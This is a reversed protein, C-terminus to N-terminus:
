QPNNFYSLKSPPVLSAPLMEFPIPNEPSKKAIECLRLAIAFEDLDLKGDKDIDSLTWVKRLVGTAVGTAVLATKVQAGSLKGAQPGLMLFQREYAAKERERIIYDEEFPNDDNGFPSTPQQPPPPEEKRPPSIMAMLRPIDVGLVEDIRNVLKEDLKAFTDFDHDKLTEKFRELDPFDGPPLRYMRKVERYVNLMDKILEDKKAKSGWLAPMQKKIHGILYAHVKVLRARKVLENVKRMASNTPLSMLDKLLDAQEADFLKANDGIQYPENWYSGIYVRMVEPTKVVKGLSWMMAGYVRMLQQPSVMDAKNLVVRIKDDNGKLAEIARKFEDSIDLKHADFLLLILDAREAFWEIVSVFDYSRGIRQKEGSLVGPTDVFSIYQLLPAPSEAAEFKSLFSAGYRNLAHFPKDADVAVANGPVVREANGHMVAVFRDTTPEPGIRSGPFPQDLMFEIFSTKGTSYQGILLVLPKAEFDTDRLFPSHFEDFKYKTEVPLIKEKYIKKLGAVVQPYLNPEGEPIKDLRRRAHHEGSNEM